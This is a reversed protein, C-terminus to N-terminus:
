SRTTLTLQLNLAQSLKKIFSLTPNSRGAEFRAIASQKTGIKKALKAQTMGREARADILARIIAFELDLADYSRKLEKDKLANKLVVQHSRVRLTVNNPM